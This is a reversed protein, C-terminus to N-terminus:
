LASPKLSTWPIDKMLGSIENTFAGAEHGLWGGFTVGEFTMM